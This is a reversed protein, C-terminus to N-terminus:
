ILRRCLLVADVLRQVDHLITYGLELVKSGNSSSKDTYGRASRTQETISIQFFFVFRDNTFRSLYFTVHFTEVFM